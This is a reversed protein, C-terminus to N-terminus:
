EASLKALKNAGVGIWLGLLFIGAVRACVNSFRTPQADSGSLIGLMSLGTGVLRARLLELDLREGILHGTEGLALFTLAGWVGLTTVTLRGLSQGWTCTGGWLRLLIHRLGSSSRLLEAVYQFDAIDRRTTPPIGRLDQVPQRPCLDIDRLRGTLTSRLRYKPWRCANFSVGLLRASPLHLEAVDIDTFWSERCDLSRSEALSLPGTVQCRSLTVDSLAAGVQLDEAEMGRLQVHAILGQVSKLGKTFIHDFKVDNIEVNSARVSEFTSDSCKGGRWSISELRLERALCNTVEPRDLALSGGSDVLTCEDVQTTFLEVGNFNSHALACQSINCDRFVCTGLDVHDGHCGRFVCNAFTVGHLQAGSLDCDIFEFGVLDVGSLRLMTLDIRGATADRAMFETWSAPDESKLIEVAEVDAM